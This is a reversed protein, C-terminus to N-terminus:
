ASAASSESEASRATVGQSVAFYMSAFASRIWIVAPIIGVGFCLAGAILIPFALLGTAFIFGSHGRTMEWSEKVAAVADM